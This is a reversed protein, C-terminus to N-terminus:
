LESPAGSDRLSEDLLQELAIHMSKRAQAEAQLSGELQTGIDSIRDLLLAEMENRMKRETDLTNQLSTMDEKLAALKADYLMGRASTEAQLTRELEDLAYTAADATSFLLHNNKDKVASIQAEFVSASDDLLQRIENSAKEDSLQALHQAILADLESLGSSSSSTSEQLHLREIDLQRGLEEAKNALRTQAADCGDRLGDFEEELRSAKAGVRELQAVRDAAGNQQALSFRARVEKLARGMDETYEAGGITVADGMSLEHWRM